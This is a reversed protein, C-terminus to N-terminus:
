YEFGEPLESILCTDREQFCIGQDIDIWKKLRTTVTKFFIINDIRMRVYSAQYQIVAAWTVEPMKKEYKQLQKFPLSLFVMRLEEVQERTLQAYRHVLMPVHQRWEDRIKV